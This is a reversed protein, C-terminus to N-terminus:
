QAADTAAARGKVGAVDTIAGAGAITAAAGATGAASQAHAENLDALTGLAAVGAATGLFDRREM